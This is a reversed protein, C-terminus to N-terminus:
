LAIEIEFIIEQLLLTTIDEYLQIDLPSCRLTLFFLM